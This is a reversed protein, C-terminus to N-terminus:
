LQPLLTPKMESRKQPLFFYLYFRLPSLPLLLGFYGTIVKFTLIRSTLESIDM